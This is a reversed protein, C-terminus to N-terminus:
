DANGGRGGDEEDLAVAHGFPPVSKRHIWVEVGYSVSVAPIM